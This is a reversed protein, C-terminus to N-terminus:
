DWVPMAYREGTILAKLTLVRVKTMGGYLLPAPLRVAGTKPRDMPHM